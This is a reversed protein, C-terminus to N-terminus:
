SAKKVFANEMTYSPQAEEKAEKAKKQLLAKRGLDNFVLKTISKLAELVGVGSTARTEFYPVAYKNLLQNLDGPRLLNQLDIKNFQLVHPLDKLDKGHERLNEELNNFSEINALKKHRQSDAVFVLGDAGRLVLKRTANYRVQGPVTYLQVRVAFDQIKGLHLPLFDFYITRDEQTSLSIMKGRNEPSLSNHIFQLSTTKGGLGPGYYVVKATIERTAFNVFAM